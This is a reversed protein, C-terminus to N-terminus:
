SDKGHASLTKDQPCRSPSIARSILPYRAFISGRQTQSRITVDAHYAPLTTRACMLLSREERRRFQRGRRGIWGSTGSEPTLHLGPGVVAPHLAGEALTDSLCLSSATLVVICGDPWGDPGPEVALLPSMWGTSVDREPAASSLLGRRFLPLANVSSSRAKALRSQVYLPM